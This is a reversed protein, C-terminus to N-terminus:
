TIARSHCMDVVISDPRCVSCICVAADHLGGVGRIILVDVILRTCCVGSITFLVVWIDVVTTPLRLCEGLRSPVRGGKSAAVGTSSRHVGRHSGGHRPFDADQRGRRYRFDSAHICDSVLLVGAELGLDLTHSLVLLVHHVHVLYREGSLM